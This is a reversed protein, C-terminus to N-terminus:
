CFLEQAMRELIGLVEYRSIIFIVLLSLLMLGGRILTIQGGAM